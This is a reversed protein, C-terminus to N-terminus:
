HKLVGHILARFFAAITFSDTIIGVRIMEEVEAVSKSEVKDISEAYSPVFPGSVACCVLEAKGDTMGTDTHLFGLSAFDKIEKAGIEEVLESLALESGSKNAEAFGRPIEWHWQRTAHRFHHVLVIRNNELPIVAVGHRNSMTGRDIARVYGRIGDTFKVRDRLVLMYPDDVLVGYYEQSEPDDSDTSEYLLEFPKYGHGISLRMTNEDNGVGRDRLIEFTANKDNLFLDPFDEILKRYVKLNFWTSM